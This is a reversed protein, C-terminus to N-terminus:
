FFRKANGGSQNIGNPESKVFSGLPMGALQMILEGSVSGTSLRTKTPHDLSIPSPPDLRAKARNRAM